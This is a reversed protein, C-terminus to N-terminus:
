DNGIKGAVISQVWKKLAPRPIKESVVHLPYGLDADCDKVIGCLYEYSKEKVSFVGCKRSALNIHSLLDELYSFSKPSPKECGLFFIDASLIDTGDFEKASCIKVKLGTLEDSIHRAISKISETEDTIILVKKSV